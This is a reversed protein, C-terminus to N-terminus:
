STLSYGIIWTILFTMSLGEASKQKYNTIIQPVEAVTWSVVSVFGLSLSIGDKVSCLCYGM